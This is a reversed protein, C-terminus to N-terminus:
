RLEKFMTTESTNDAPIKIKHTEGSEFDTKYYIYNGSININYAKENTVRTRHTGDTKISYMNGNDCKNNYYITDGSINIYYSEDNTLKTFNTGDISMKCLSRYDQEDTFYISDGYVNMFANNGSRILTKGSGDKNMRYIAGGGYQVAGQVYYIYNDTVNIYRCSGEDTLKTRNSGDLNMRYINGRDNLNTYYIYKGYVYLNEPADVNNISELVLNDLNLRYTKKTLRTDIYYVYNDLVNISEPYQTGIIDIRNGNDGIMKLFTDSYADFTYGSNRATYGNNSINAATNGQHRNSTLTEAIYDPLVGAGGIFYMTGINNKNEYIYDRTISLPNSYTIVVASSNQAAIASGSLADPFNEGLAVFTKSLDVDQGFRKIIKINTEYRDQGYIREASPFKNVVSDSIVGPGGVVYSKDVKKSNIFSAVDESVSNKSSLLIPMERKAAFPAISLADPFNEGSAVAVESFNGLRQAVALSTGYRDQGWIREYEIKQTQGTYTLNSIKNVVNDTVVGSGGIIIVKKVKLRILEKETEVNLSDKSTLLIPANYLKALPSACLADPFDEGNAIIVYDSTNWGNQSVAAATGYRDQGSLRELQPAAQVKSTFLMVPILVFCLKISLKIKKNM